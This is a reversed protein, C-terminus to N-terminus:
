GIEEQNEQETRQGMALGPNKEIAVAIPGVGM